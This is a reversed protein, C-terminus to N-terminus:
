SLFFLLCHTQKISLYNVKKKTQRRTQANSHTNTHKKLNSFYDSNGFPLVLKVIESIVESAILMAALVFVALHIKM